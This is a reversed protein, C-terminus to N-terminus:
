ATGRTRRLWRAFSANFEAGAVVTLSTLYMWLLLIILSGLAGYTKNYNAFERLYYSFLSSVTIWLFTAVMAGPVIQSRPHDRCDPGFRYVLVFLPTVLLIALPYRLIEVVTVWVHRLGLGTALEAALPAVIVGLFALIGFVTTLLVLGIAILRNKWFPRRNPAEYARMTAKIFAAFVRSAPLLVLALSAILQLELHAEGLNRIYDTILRKSELPLFPDLFLVLRERFGPDRTIIGFLTVLFLLLPFLSFAFNFAAESALGNGDDRRWGRAADHLVWALDRLRM